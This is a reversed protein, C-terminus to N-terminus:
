RAIALPGADRETVDLTGDADADRYLFLSGELQAEITALLGANSASSIVISGDAEREADAFTIGNFLLSVDVFVLLAGADPSMAFPVEAILAISGTSASRIFVPTSGLSADIALTLDTLAAPADEEWVVREFRFACYDGEELVPEADLAVAGQLDLAVPDNVFVTGDDDCEASLAVDDISLWAGEISVAPIIGMPTGTEGGVEPAFPPNGTETGVCGTLALITIALARKV